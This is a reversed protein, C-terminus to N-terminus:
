RGPGEATWLRAQRWMEDYQRLFGTHLVGDHAATLKYMGSRHGESTTGFASLYLIGDFVLMRWTPLSSYIAVRMRIHPHGTFEALRALALRIGARFSEATEGIEAGRVQAADSDPDLLLVRVDVSSTRGSLPGCLLSDNLAILGLARAALIDISSASRAQDRLEQNAEAQATFVRAIEAHGTLTDAHVPALGFLVRADDPMGLGDALRELVDLRSVQRRGNVIENLRGQGIGSAAALRAQSAGSHQQILRLLAATDRQRLAQRVAPSRWAGSPVDVPGYRDMEGGGYM